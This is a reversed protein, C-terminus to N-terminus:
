NIKEVKGLNVLAQYMMVAAEARTAPKDPDLLSTNLQNAILGKEAAAAVQNLAWAPLKDADPYSKLIDKPDQSPKLNL